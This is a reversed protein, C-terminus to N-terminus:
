GKKRTSKRSKRFAEPTTCTSWHSIYGIGTAKQPDAPREALLVEGNPTVIKLSGGAKQEYAVEEPNVPITKGAVTKIFMIEAGCGKCPTTKYGM